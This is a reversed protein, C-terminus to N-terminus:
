ARAAEDVLGYRKRIQRNLTGFLFEDVIVGVVLLVIMVAILGRADAFQNALEMQEGLSHTGPIVVLLEGALLSRWAFAWGQKLGSVFGPLAAPLTVRRFAAFGRAGLVRGARRLLPPTNDIGDILGNAIAPAAGLVVVFLIAGETLKFLIIALPFWAVSPMTQLGTIMSGIGARLVRSKTVAAGIVTGIVVALTFGQAARGLTTGAAGSLVDFNDYLSQFVQHPPPLLYEPKWGSWVVCQWFLLFLGVALAKPWSASWIRGGVSRRAARPVDLADLGSLQTDIESGSVAASVAM